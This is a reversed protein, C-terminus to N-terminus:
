PATARRMTSIPMRSRTFRSSRRAAGRASSGGVPAVPEEVADDGDLRRERRPREELAHLGDLGDEAARPLPALRRLRLPEHGAGEVDVDQEVLVLDDADGVVEMDRVEQHMLAG